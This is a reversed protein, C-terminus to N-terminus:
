GGEIVRCTRQIVNCKMLSLSSFRSSIRRSRVLARSVIAAQSSSLGLASAGLGPRGCTQFHPSMEDPAEFRGNSIDRKHIMPMFPRPIARGEVDAKRRGDLKRSRGM